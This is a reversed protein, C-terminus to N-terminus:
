LVMNQFNWERARKERLYKERQERKERPSPREPVSCESLCSRCLDSGYPGRGLDLPDFVGGCRQCTTLGHQKHKADLETDNVPKEEAM